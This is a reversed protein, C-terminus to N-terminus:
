LSANDISATKRNVQLRRSGLWLGVGGLLTDRARILLSVSAGVAPNFGLAGFALAQSFELAGLGAPLFLLIAIRAATLTTVLEPLTLRVGLFYVMLWYEAIMAVWSVLTVIVALALTGPARRVFAAMTAESVAVADRAAALPEAWRDLLRAQSLPHILAALPRRGAVAAGLYLAPLLVLVVGVAFAQRGVSQDLLQWRLILGIGLLLVAFNIIFEITKDLTVAALAHSRPVGHGREVLMVQLPEGGVHPGPTFYSLGFVALRYELLRLLPVRYGLGGLLLWWRGTIALLVAANAVLLVGIEWLRLQRLVQWVEALSVTRLVWLFLAAGLLWPLLRLLRQRSVRRGAPTAPAPRGAAMSLISRHGGADRRRHGGAGGRQGMAPRPHRHRLRDALDDLGFGAARCDGAHNASHRRYCDPRRGDSRLTAGPVHWSTLLTVWAAPQWPPSAQSLLSVMAVPLVARLLLPLYIAFIRHIAQRRHQYAPQDPDIRGSVVLWDRLFGAGTATAFLTGAITAMAAPLIPWLVVSLFGMQFGAFLRRHVSPTLDYIPWGRRRRWWLGLVFLYRALGISLYWWPLQGFSIALLIVVLTGLGDFEMDLRAGLETVHNARRALYGDFYDAISGLTYILVIIWALAGMPWPGFLFGGILVISLGRLLTLANGPGLTSLLHHSDPPHNTDLHRWLVWWLGYVLLLGSLWLWRDVYAWVPRLLWYGTVWAAVWLIAVVSWQRQLTRLSASNEATLNADIGAM